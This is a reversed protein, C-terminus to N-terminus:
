KKNCEDKEENVQVFKKEEEWKMKEEEMEKRRKVGSLSVEVHEKPIKVTKKANEQNNMVRFLYGNELDELYVRLNDEVPLDARM